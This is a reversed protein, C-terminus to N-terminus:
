ALSPVATVNFAGTSKNNKHQRFTPFFRIQLLPTHFDLVHKREFTWWRFWQVTMKELWTVIVVPLRSFSICATYICVATWHSTGCFWATRTWIQFPLPAKKHLLNKNAEMRTEDELGVVFMGYYKTDVHLCCIWERSNWPIGKATPAWRERRFSPVNM